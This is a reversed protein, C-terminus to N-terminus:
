AKASSGASRTLPAHAEDAGALQANTRTGVSTTRRRSLVIRRTVLGAVSVVAVVYLAQVWPQHTDTGSYIGHVLAGVFVAFTLYHVRRWWRYGIRARFRSSVWIALMLECSVIGLSLPLPRWHARFPVVAQLLSIHSYPDVVVGTIHVVLFALALVTLYQHLDNTVFRPWRPSTFRMSVVLGLCVSATLLGFAVLGGARAIDWALHANM